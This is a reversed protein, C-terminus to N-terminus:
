SAKSLTAVATKVREVLEPQLYASRPKLLSQVEMMLKHVSADEAAIKLLGAFFALSQELDAPRQGETRPDIFDPIAASWWPTDILMAANGLFRKRLGEGDAECKSLLTHLVEAQLIAVSMGQGYIPNFRCIADGLPLVGRPFNELKEYHFWRSAKLGFRPIAEPVKAHCIANYVTQTRLLKAYALFESWEAPPKEDYRGALSVIWRNGEVPLLLAMRKVHPYHPYTVVGKWASPADKPIDLLASAYAMDVGISTEEPLPWGASRLLKLTLRSHASADIVLDAPITERKGEPMQCRVGCVAGGAGHAALEEARCSHLIEVNRYAGLRKRVTWELVPRTMSYIRIGFDRLPFPDYGPRELYYEFGMRLAVAGAQSLSAEFDPFLRGLAQLGGALLGHLHRCQPTGPRYNV